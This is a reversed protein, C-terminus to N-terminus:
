VKFNEDDKLSKMYGENRIIGSNIKQIEPNEFVIKLIDKMPFIKKPSMEFYIRRVFELDEKEDVTWRLKSYNQENKYNYLEFKKPNNKIYSTVHERESKLKAKDAAQKLAMFSFIETDLGDPYTPSITNSVYDYNNSLFFELFEEVLVPDILPCDSTIRIIPDANFKLACQYHRNLVDLVDGRFSLIQSENAIEIIKEDIERITTILIIQDINKVQKARNIVHWLLPKGEIIKLVKNPLRSSDTRAQIM